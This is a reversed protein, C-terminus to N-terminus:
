ARRDAGDGGARQWPFPQVHPNKAMYAELEDRRLPYWEDYPYRRFYEGLRERFHEDAVANLRGVRLRRHEQLDEQPVRITVAFDVAMRETFGIGEDPPLYFWKLNVRSHQTIVNVWSSPKTTEACPPYVDRFERIECLTIDPGLLVDCDQSAVIAKVPRLGLLATVPQGARALEEWSMPQAEPDTTIVPLERLSLEVRPVSYFIDGQRIPADIEPYEYIM